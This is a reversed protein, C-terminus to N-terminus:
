LAKPKGSCFKTPLDGSLDQISVKQTYDWPNYIALKIKIVPM